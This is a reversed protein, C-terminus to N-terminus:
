RAGRQLKACRDAWDEGRKASYVLVTAVVIMAGLGGLAMTAGLAENERPVLVVGATMSTLGGGFAIAWLTWDVLPVNTGADCTVTAAPKAPLDPLSFACASFTIVAVAATLAKM